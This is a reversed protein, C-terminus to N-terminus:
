IVDEVPTPLAVNSKKGYKGLFFKRGEEFYDQDTPSNTPLANIALKLNPCAKQRYLPLFAEFPYANPNTSGISGTSIM